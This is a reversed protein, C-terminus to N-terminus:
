ELIREKIVPIAKLIDKIIFIRMRQESKRIIIQAFAIMFKLVLFPTIVSLAIKITAGIGGIKSLVDIASFYVYTYTQITFDYDLGM